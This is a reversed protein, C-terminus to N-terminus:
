THGGSAIYNVALYKGDETLENIALGCADRRIRQAIGYKVLETRGEKSVLDGDWVPGRALQDLVAWASNSMNRLPDSNPLSAVFRSAFAEAEKNTPPIMPAGLLLGPYRARVAHRAVRDALASSRNCNENADETGDKTQLSQRPNQDPPRPKISAGDRGCGNGNMVQAGNQHPRALQAVM